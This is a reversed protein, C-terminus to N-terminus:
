LLGRQKLFLNGMSIVNALPKLNLDSRTQANEVGIEELLDRAAQIPDSEPAAAAAAQGERLQVFYVWNAWPACPGRGPLSVTAAGEQEAQFIDRWPQPISSYEVAFPKGRADMLPTIAPITTM